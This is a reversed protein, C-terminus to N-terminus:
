ILRVLCSSRCVWSLPCETWNPLPALEGTMHRGSLPSRTIHAVVEQVRAMIREAIVPNGSRTYYAAIHRIDAIARKSYEVRM